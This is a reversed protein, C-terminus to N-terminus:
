KKLWEDIQKNAEEHSLWQGNKLQELGENVAEIEGPSMEYVEDMKLEFDILRSIHDLLEDDDINSIKAILKKKLEVDISM